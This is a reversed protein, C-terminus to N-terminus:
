KGVNAGDGKTGEATVGQKGSATTDPLEGATPYMVLHAQNAAMANSVLQFQDNRVFLLLTSKNSGDTSRQVALVHIPSVLQTQKTNGNQNSVMLAVDQGPRALGEVADTVPLQMLVGQENKSTAYATLLAQVDEATSVMNTSIPQGPQVSVSLYKGTLEAPNSILHAQEAFSTPVSMTILSEELIQTDMTIQNAAVVVEVSQTVQKYGWFGLAGAGVAAALSVYLYWSRKM